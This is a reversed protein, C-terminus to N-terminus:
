LLELQPPPPAPIKGLHTIHAEACFQRWVVVPDTVAATIDDPVYADKDRSREDWRHKHKEGVHQCSPNHHDKGMDLGYIRGVGRHILVFSLAKALSNYSGRVFLPYGADSAVEARFEVSPSHDEDDSWSIDGEITKSEDAILAEFENQNM